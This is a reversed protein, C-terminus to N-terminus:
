RTAFGLFVVGSSFTRSELLRLDAPRQLDPFFPTGGGLVVPHIVLGYEDVLGLRIFDAALTPGGIEIDGRFDRRLEGLITQPDGRMLRWGAPAEHISNSVVVKPKANWIRAFEVMASTAAPDAEAAPWYASMLEYLRRGYVIAEISRTRENFWTHLEEDVIAWELSHDPAEIYGDLSVNMLFVVKGM